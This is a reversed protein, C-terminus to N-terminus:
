TSLGNYQIPSPPCVLFRLLSCRACSPDHEPGAGCCGLGGRSIGRLGLLRCSRGGCRGYRWTRGRRRRRLLERWPLHRALQERAIVHAHANVAGIVLTDTVDVVDDEVLVAPNDSHNDSHASEHPESLLRDSQGVVRYLERRLTIGHRNIMGLGLELARGREDRCACVLRAAAASTLRAAAACAAAVRFFSRDTPWRVRSRSLLSNGIFIFVM